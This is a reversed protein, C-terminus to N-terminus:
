ESFDLSGQLQGNDVRYFDYHTPGPWSNTATQITPPNTTKDIAKFHGIRAAPFFENDIPADRTVFPVEQGEGVNFLLSIPSKGACNQYIYINPHLTEAYLYGNPNEILYYCEHMEKMLSLEKVYSQTVVFTLTNEKESGTVCNNPCSNNLLEVFWYEIEEKKRTDLSLPMRGKTISNISYDNLYDQLRDALIEKENGLNGSEASTKEPLTQRKNNVWSYTQSLIIGLLFAFLMGLFNPISFLKKKHHHTKGIM